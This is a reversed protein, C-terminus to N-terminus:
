NNIVKVEKCLIFLITNAELKLVKADAPVLQSKTGIPRIASISMRFRRTRWRRNFLDKLLDLM